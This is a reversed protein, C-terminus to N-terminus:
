MEWHKINKRQIHRLVDSLLEDSKKQIDKLFLPKDTM